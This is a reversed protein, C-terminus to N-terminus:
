KMSSMLSSNRILSDFFSNFSGVGMSNKFELLHRIAFQSNSDLDISNHILYSHHWEGKTRTQIKGDKPIHNVM